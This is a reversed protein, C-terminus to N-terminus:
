HGGPGGFSTLRWGDAAREFTVRADVPDLSPNGGGPTIRTTGRVRATAKDGEVAIDSVKWDTRMRGGAGFFSELYSQQASPMAPFAQRAQPASAGNLAAAYRRVAAEVAKRDVTSPGGGSQV